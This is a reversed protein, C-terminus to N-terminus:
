SQSMTVEVVKRLRTFLMSTKINEPPIKVMRSLVERYTELQPRYKEITEPLDDDSGVRDTKFDLIEAQKGNIVVRDFTGSLWEGDLLIEFRQERWCEASPSPRTLAAVIEPAEMCERVENIALEKTSDSYNSLMRWKSELEAFANPSDIWLIQEFLEHVLTGFERAAKGKRSFIQTGTVTFKESGSPTRRRVRPCAKDQSVPAVPASESEQEPGAEDKKGGPNQYWFPDSTTGTKSEFLLEAELDGFRTADPEDARCLALRLFAPMNWSSQRRPPRELIVYNAYRARTLGVYLKCLNEYAAEDQRRLLNVSLAPDAEALKRIPMDLVWEVDREQNESQGIENRLNTLKKGELDPLIVMDFTLGKSKHITMVQVACSANPERVKHERAYSLFDDIDRSGREDFVRAALALAEARGQNFADLPEGLADQIQQLFNRVAHEFGHDFIALTGERSLKGPSLEEKEIRSRYPTMQLHQWSFRDGPHAVCKLYSIVARNIANDTAISVESESMVPVDCHARIYNVLDNGLRNTQVLIACNIGREVPQIEELMAVVLQFRGEAKPPADELPQMLACYGPTEKNPPAVQHDEWKWRERTPAPLEIEELYGPDGFVRNVMDIVAEGSRWSVNLARPFIRKEHANYHDSIDDFLRTDGGRWAYIAQKTDGVQFFSRQDSTDQVVEDILNVIAKWQPYSTDQFEDIMWHDFCADLRYDIRLQDVTNDEQTLTPSQQFTTGSLLLEIDQFTLKGQRRVRDAYIMEFRNLLKWIGQTRRLKALIECRVIYTVIERLARGGERNIHHLKRNLKIGTEVGDLLDSWIQRALLRELMFDIRNPLPLGPTYSLTEERFENWYKWASPSLPKETNASEIHEFLDDFLCDLNPSEKEGHWPFSHPTQWITGIDGWQSKDPARLLLSHLDGLFRDLERRVKSEERGFTAMRFAELFEKQEESNGQREFVYRCVQEQANSRLHEDIVEFDGTLGYEPAFTRLVQAFFSDLTGLFLQPMRDIFKRLLQRYDDASLEALVASLPDTEDAALSAREKPDLAALALKKLIEEFFEGAAKRTFTLAIIREPTVELGSKLQLGMLGIYRNTLQWTKGSGASARIMENRVSM